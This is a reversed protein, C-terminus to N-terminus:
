RLDDGSSNDRSWKDRLQRTASDLPLADVARAVDAAKEVAELNRQLTENEIRVNRLENASREEKRGRNKIKAVAALLGALVALAALARVKWKAFFM